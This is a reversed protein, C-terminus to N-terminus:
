GDDVLDGPMTEDALFDVGSDSSSSGSPFYFGGGKFCNKITTENVENWAGGLWFCADLVTTSRTLAIM